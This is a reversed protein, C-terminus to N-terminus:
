VGGIGTRTRTHTRTHLYVHTYMHTQKHRLFSIYLRVPCRVECVCMCVHTHSSYHSDFVCIYVGTNTNAFIIRVCLSVCIFDQVSVCRHSSRSNCVGCACTHTFLLARSDCVCACVQTEIQLFSIYVCVGTDRDALIM